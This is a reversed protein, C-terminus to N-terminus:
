SFFFSWIGSIHGNLIQYLAFISLFAYYCRKPNLKPFYPKSLVHFFIHWISSLVSHIWKTYSQTSEIEHTVSDHSYLINWLRADCFRAYLSRLNSDWIRADCLRADELVSNVSLRMTMCRCYHAGFKQGKALCLRARQKVYSSKLLCFNKTM